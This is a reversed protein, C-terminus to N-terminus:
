NAIQSSVEGGSNWSTAALPSSAKARVLASNCGGGVWRGHEHRSHRIYRQNDQFYVHCQFRSKTPVISVASDPLTKEPGDMTIPYNWWGSNWCAAATTAFWWSETFTRKRRWAIEARRGGWDAFLPVLEQAGRASALTPAHTWAKYQDITPAVRSRWAEYIEDASAQVATTCRSRNDEDAKDLARKDGYATWTQGAPNQVRLGIANDEDHM